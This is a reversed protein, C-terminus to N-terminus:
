SLSSAVNMSFRTTMLLMQMWTTLTFGLWCRLVCVRYWGESTAWGFLKLATKPRKREDIGEFWNGM